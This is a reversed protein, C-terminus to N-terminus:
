ESTRLAEAATGKRKPAARRSASKRTPAAEATANRVPARSSQRTVEDIVRLVSTRAESLPERVGGEQEAFQEVVEALLGEAKALKKLAKKAKM